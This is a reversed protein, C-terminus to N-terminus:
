GLETPPVVYAGLEPPRQIHRPYLHAPSVVLPLRWVTLM